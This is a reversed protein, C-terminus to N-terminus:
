SLYMSSVCLLFCMMFECSRSTFFFVEEILKLCSLSWPSLLCRMSLSISISRLQVDCLSRGHDM